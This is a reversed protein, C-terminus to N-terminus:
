RGAPDIDGDGPTDVPEDKPAKHGGFALVVKGLYTVGGLNDEGYVKSVGEFGVADPVTAWSVEAAFRVIGRGVEVGGLLHFGAKTRSQSYHEGAVESEEKFAALTLGLGAYPVILHGQRFRYGASLLAPNVRLSLPHGLKEVAQGPGGVFVREGDKSFARWAAAVFIGNDLSFRAGGGFTAGGSAGLVANASNEASMSFYGAHGEVAWESAAAPADPVLLALAAAAALAIRRTKSTM